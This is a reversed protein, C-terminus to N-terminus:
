ISRNYVLVFIHTFLKRRVRALNRLSLNGEWEEEDVYTFEFLHSSDVKKKIQWIFNFSGLSASELLICISTWNM